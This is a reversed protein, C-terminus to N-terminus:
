RDRDETVSRLQQKLVLFDAPPMSGRCRDFAAAESSTLEFTQTLVSTLQRDSM